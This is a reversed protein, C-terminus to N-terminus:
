KSFERLRLNGAIRDQSRNMSMCALIYNKGVPYNFLHYSTHQGLKLYRFNDDGLAINFFPIRSLSHSAYPNQELKRLTSRYYTRFRQLEAISRNKEFWAFAQGYDRKLFEHHEVTLM